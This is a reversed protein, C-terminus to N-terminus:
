DGAAHTGQEAADAIADPPQAARRAAQWQEILATARPGTATAHLRRRNASVHELHIDLHDEPLLGNFREAWEVATVRRPGFMLETDLWAAEVPGDLRYGDVHVLTTAGRHERMLVFTPSKIAGPDRGTGRAVGQIFTTKGSGLDGSLALVDGGALLRGLLEGLALTDDVSNSM